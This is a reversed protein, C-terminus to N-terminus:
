GLHGFKELAESYEHIKRMDSGMSDPYNDIIHKLKAHDPLNKLIYEIATLNGLDHHEQQTSVLRLNKRMDLAGEFDDDIKALINFLTTKGVGNRGVVGIKEDDDIFLELNHFLKKNGITKNEIFARLLM